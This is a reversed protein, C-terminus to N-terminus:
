QLAKPGWRWYTGSIPDAIKEIRSRVCSSLIHVGHNLVKVSLLAVAWGAAAVGTGDNTLAGIAGAVHTGHGNDDEANSDNNEFDRQAVVAPLDEHSNDVGTDVVAIRV